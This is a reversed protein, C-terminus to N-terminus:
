PVVEYVTGYGHAGGNETTGYLNGSSDKILASFPYTGDGSSGGFSYVVAEGWVGGSKFLVFVAGENNAGGDVTTGYFTTSGSRLLRAYPGAGDAGGFNYLINENWTGGSKNLQFVIGFKHKGGYKATGYLAGKKDMVLGGNPNLGDSGGGFSHLVQETWVGGSESLEYVAGVGNTGGNYTTGYLSGSSDMLLGSYPNTADSGGAFSYLINETWTGGSQSLQFVTGASSAGGGYTTGYLAGSGDMILDCAPGAGDGSGGFAWITKESWAGGSYKLQFVNGDGYADGSQTTGYLAGTSDQILGAAPLAGDVNNFKLPQSETWTGGSQTLEFVQGYGPSQGVGTGFLSNSERLLQGLPYGWDGSKFSWLVTESGAQVPMAALVIVVMWLALSVILASRAM